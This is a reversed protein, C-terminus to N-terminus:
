VSSTKRIADRGSRPTEETRTERRLPKGRDVRWLYTLAEKLRATAQMREDASMQGPDLDLKLHPLEVRLYEGAESLSEHLDVVRYTAVPHGIGRVRIRGTEECHVEDKVHAYTEYSILIGGEPAEHELRSTLNVAGGIITYDMRDESGFNGVTCYGTHIGIRCALPKEIGSERWLAGLERMRKQMAIAMKVCALADEKVGRTEPDGFFIMIADGIYKDITAGHELAVKSMETLYQNLLQTLDESEMQDTTETFGALDSFFVTLKKRQSALKVEQRGAFISAYVQPSLYKALKNSLVELERHKRSIEEAAERTSRNAAELEMERQKLQTIDSYVAVTGGGTVQREAILIWRGDARHQLTPAGPNRHQALRRQVYGEPDDGAEPILGNEVSRRVIGEFPVGPELELDTRGYLLEKYRTNRLQLRDEADYFAFGESISEIADILRQRASAVERTREEVKHELSAYSEQLRAAMRNFDGALAELEDGTRIEIRDSLDGGGIRAAGEQLRRIPGTMRRALMLGALVALLVGALVLGGTRLMSAYLPQYAEALPLDAFVLWGLPAIRANTSLAARGEPDPATMLEGAAGGALAAAVQPSGALNTRRLVLSIDPHAILRGGSDVVYARGTAGVEIGSVVDWIFKLNVEAVTVGGGRGQEAAAITMYPESEKHFYVTSRWAGKARAEAFSPEGTRDIGSGVVDMAVRSIRLQEKGAGDIYALETIPPAQRLLRIYDFRRQAAGDPGAYAIAHTTWGLQGEIGAVFQAIAQAAAAAKERQIRVLANRHEGYAFWIQLAGSVVLAGAVLAALILAYKHLLRGRSPAVAGEEPAHLGGKM